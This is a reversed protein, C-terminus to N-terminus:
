LFRHPPFCIGHNIVWSGTGVRKEKAAEWSPLWLSFSWRANGREKRVRTAMHGTDTWHSTLPLEQSSEPFSIKNGSLVSVHASNM